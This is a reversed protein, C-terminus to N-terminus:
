RFVQTLGYILAATGAVDLVGVAGRGKENDPDRAAQGLLLGPVIGVLLGAAGALLPPRTNRTGDLHRTSYEVGILALGSFIAGMGYGGAPVWLGSRPPREQPIPDIVVMQPLPHQPPPSEALTLVLATALASLL